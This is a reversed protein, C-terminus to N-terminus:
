RLKQLLDGLEQHVEESASVVLGHGNDFYRISGAGGAVDWSEPRVTAEILDILQRADAQGGGAPAARPTAALDQELRRRLHTLRAAVRGRLGRVERSTTFRPDAVLRDHLDVLRRVVEGRAAVGQPLKGPRTAAEVEAVVDAIAPPAGRAPAALGCATAVAVAFGIESVRWGTTGSDRHNM